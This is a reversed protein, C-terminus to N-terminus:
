ESDEDSYYDTDNDFLDSDDDSSDYPIGFFSDMVYVSDTSKNNKYEEIENNIKNLEDDTLNINSYKDSRVNEIDYSFMYKTTLQDISEEHHERGVRIPENLKLWENFNYDSIVYSIFKTIFLKNNKLVLVIFTM